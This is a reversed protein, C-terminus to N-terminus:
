ACGYQEPDLYRLYDAMIECNEELEDENDALAYFSVVAKGFMMTPDDRIGQYVERHHHLKLVEYVPKLWDDTEHLWVSRYVSLGVAKTIKFSKARLFTARTIDIALDALGPGTM